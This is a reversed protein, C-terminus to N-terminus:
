PGPPPSEKPAFAVSAAGGLWGLAGLAYAALVDPAYQNLVLWNVIVIVGVGLYTYIALRTAWNLSGTVASPNVRQADDSAVSSITFGLVAATRATLLTTIAGAAATLGESLEIPAPDADADAAFFRIWSRIIIALWIGVFALLASYAIADLTFRRRRAVAPNVPGTTM